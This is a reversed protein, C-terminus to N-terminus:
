CIKLTDGGAFTNPRNIAAGLLTWVLRHVVCCGRVASRRAPQTTRRYEYQIYPVVAGLGICGPQQRAPSTDTVTNVRYRALCMILYSPLDLARHVSRYSAYIIYLVVYMDYFLSMFIRTICTLYCSAAGGPPPSPGSSYIDRLITAVGQM